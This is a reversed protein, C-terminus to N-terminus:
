ESFSLAYFGPSTKHVWLGLAKNVCEFSVLNFAAHADDVCVMRCVHDNFHYINVIVM